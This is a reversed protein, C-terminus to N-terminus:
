ANAAPTVFCTMPGWSQDATQAFRCLKANRLNNTQIQSVLAAREVSTVTKAARAEPTLSALAIPRFAMQTLTVTASSGPALEVDIVLQHEAFQSHLTYQRAATRTPQGM